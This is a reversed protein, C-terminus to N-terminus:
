PGGPFTRRYFSFRNLIPMFRKVGKRAYIEGPDFAVETAAPLRALLALQAALRMTESDKPDLKSAASVHARHDKLCSYTSCASPM